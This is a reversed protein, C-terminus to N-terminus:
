AKTRSSPNGVVVAASHTADEGQHRGGEGVGLRTHTMGGEAEAEEVELTLTPGLMTDVAVAAAVM